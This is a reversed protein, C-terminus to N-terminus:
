LADASMWLGPRFGTRSRCFHRCATTWHSWRGVVGLLWGHDRLGRVISELAAREPLHLSDEVGVPRTGVEGVGDTKVGSAQGLQVDPSSRAQAFVRTGVPHQARPVPFRHEVLKRPQHNSTAEGHAGLDRMLVVAPVGPNGVADVRGPVPFLELRESHGIAHVDKRHAPRQMTSRFSRQQREGSLGLLRRPQQVVLQRTRPAGRTPCGATPLHRGVWAEVRVLLEARQCRDHERPCRLQPLGIFAGHYAQESRRGLNAENVAESM